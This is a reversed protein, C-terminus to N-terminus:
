LFLNLQAADHLGSLLLVVVELEDTFHLTATFYYFPKLFILLYETYMQVYVTQGKLKHQCYSYHETLAPNPLRSLPAHHKEGIDFRLNQAETGKWGTNNRRCRRSGLCQGRSPLDKRREASSPCVAPKKRNLLRM